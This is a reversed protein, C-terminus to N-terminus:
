LKKKFRVYISTALVSLAKTDETVYIKDVTQM